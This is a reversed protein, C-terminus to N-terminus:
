KVFSWSRIPERKLGPLKAELGWIFLQVNNEKAYKKIAPIVVWNSSPEGNKARIRAYDHGAVIGGKKVKKAWTNIDQSVYPESHNADIYVADLSEDPVDKAAELSTKRIFEYNPYQDLRKHADAEMQNFTSKKVYDKYGSYPLYPDVGYMKELQPNTKMIAKSYAGAAVGIEAGIKFDMDHFLEALDTRDVNPIEIVDTKINYKKLIFEVTNKM